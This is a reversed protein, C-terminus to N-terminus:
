LLLLEGLAVAIVISVRVPLFLESLPVQIVLRKLSEAVEVRKNNRHGIKSVVKRSECFRKSVRIHSRNKISNKDQLSVFKKGPVTIIVNICSKGWPCSNRLWMCRTKNFRLNKMIIFLEIIHSLEFRFPFCNFKLM